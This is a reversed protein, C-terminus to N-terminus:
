EVNQVQERIKEIETKGDVALESLEALPSKSLITNMERGMEQAIFDLRRGVVTSEGGNLEQEFHATHSRLRVIEEAIDAREVYHLIEQALRSEDVLGEEQLRALKKTLKQRHYAPVKEAQQAIADTLQRLAQVHECFANKLEVGESSRTSVVMGLAETFTERLIGLLGKGSLDVSHPKIVGPLQFLTSVDLKGEVGLARVKAATKIYTEVAAENLDYHAGAKLGLEVHVDVRGRSLSDQMTKRLEPELFNLEKPLRLKLDLYRSNVTRIEVAVDVDETARSAQGFGTMSRMNM